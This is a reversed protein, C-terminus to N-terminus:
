IHKGHDPESAIRICEELAIRLEQTVAALDSGYAIPKGFHVHHEANKKGKNRYYIGAPYIPVKGAKAFYAAGEKLEGLVVKGDPGYEQRTGEPFIGLAWKGHKLVNLCSKVTSIELKDRNVAFTNVNTYYWLKLPTTFLEKKGMYALPTYFISSALVPPDLTSSHNSALILPTPESPFNELGTVITRNNLVHFYTHLILQNVWQFALKYWGLDEKSIYAYSKEKKSPETEAM